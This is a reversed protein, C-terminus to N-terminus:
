FNPVKKLSNCTSCSSVVSEITKTAGMAYSYQDLLKKLQNKSAHNFQLHLALILGASISKPCYILEKCGVYPDQRRVILLTKSKNVSAIRLISKVERCDKNSKKSPRTGNLLHSFSTRCVPDSQQASRWSSSSLFPMRLKGHLVEEISVSRVVSNVSENVFKCIQCCPEKCTLPSRSAFDSVSNDSGKIHCLNVNLGALTSLFTSVRASASFEGRQLKNWAQVCPKSDTLIQTPQISERIYPAFHSAATSIALAELECPLWKTQHDKMKFSFFEAVKQIGKRFVFM